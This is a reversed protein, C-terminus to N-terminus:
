IHGNHQHTQQPHNDLAVPDAGTGALQLELMRVRQLTEEQLRRNISILDAVLGIVFIQFGVLLLVAALILSQVHGMGFGTFYYYMYRIGLLLGMLFVLSGITFFVKLPEYMSYIRVITAASRRVYGWNSKFLRSPRTPRAEIPIYAISLRKMGAQILTELTYSYKSTVFLRLAADRSMARFGSPADPVETASAQRMVWSGAAQLLKKQPSFHKLMHTQRDGIVMDAEGRLIPEILRPIDAQPYQNDGDTNVIIDAGLKLCADIGDQFAAALGRNRTHRVIHDAGCERAIQMTADTSGDDIVLTEISDVGPISRPIEHLVAPLTEAENHCPIQIIVRM